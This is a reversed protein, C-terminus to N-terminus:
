RNSWRRPRARACAGEDGGVSGERFPALDEWVGGTDDGEDVAEEVVGLDEGDVAFGVAELFGALSGILACALAASGLWSFALRSWGGEEGGGEEGDGEGNGGVPGGLLRKGDELEEIVEAVGDGGPVCGLEAVGRTLQAL